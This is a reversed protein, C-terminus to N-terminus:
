HLIFKVKLKQIYNKESEIIEEDSIETDIDIIKEKICKELHPM